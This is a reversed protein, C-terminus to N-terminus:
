RPISGALQHFHRSAVEAAEPIEARAEQFVWSGDVREALKASVSSRGEFSRDELELGLDSNVFLVGDITNTIELRIEKDPDMDAGIGWNGMRFSDAEMRVLANFDTTGSGRRPKVQFVALFRARETKKTRGTLHWANPTYEILKGNEDLSGRWNQAPIEYQGTVSWDDEESSFFHVRAHGARNHTPLM